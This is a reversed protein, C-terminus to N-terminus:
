IRAEYTPGGGADKDRSVEHIRFYERKLVWDVDVDHTTPKRWDDGLSWGDRGVPSRACDFGSEANAIGAHHPM